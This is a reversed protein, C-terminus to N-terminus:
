NEKKDAARRRALEAANRQRGIFKLVEDIVIVPMSYQMVVYWEDYTLPCVSFMKSMEPIYLIVGHLAFSLAMALLLYPNAWPPM